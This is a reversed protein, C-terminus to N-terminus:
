KIGEKVKYKESYEDRESESKDKGWNNGKRLKWGTEKVWWGKSVYEADKFIYKM